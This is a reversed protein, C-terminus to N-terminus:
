VRRFDDINRYLEERRESNVLCPQEVGGKGIGGDAM